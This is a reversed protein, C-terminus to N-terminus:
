GAKCKKPRNLTGSAEEESFIERIDVGLIDAIQQAKEATLKTRGREIGSYGAPTLGLKGAVYTAKIGKTMRLQKIRKGYEVLKVESENLMESLRTLNYRLM